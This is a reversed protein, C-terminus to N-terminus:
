QRLYVEGSFVFRRAKMKIQLEEIKVNIEELQNTLEAIQTQQKEAEKPSLLLQQGLPTLGQSSRLENIQSRLKASRTRLSALETQDKKKQLDFYETLALKEIQEKSAFSLLLEGGKQELTKYTGRSESVSARSLGPSSPFTIEM